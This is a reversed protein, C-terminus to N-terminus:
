LWSGFYIKRLNNMTHIKAVIIYLYSVYCIWVGFENGYKFM